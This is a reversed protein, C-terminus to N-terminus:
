APKRVRGYGQVVGTSRDKRRFVGGGNSQSGGPGSSTNGDITELPGSGDALVGTHDPVGGDFNFTVVVLHGDRHWSQATALSTTWGDFGGTKAQAHGKIAPVYRVDNVLDVGYVRAVAHVFAGCWAYGGQPLGVQGQWATIKPGKNSGAPSETTGVQAGAWKMAAALGKGNKERDAKRKKARALEAKTRNGPHRIVEVRRLAARTSGAVPYVGLDLATAKTAADTDPGYVNDRKLKPGGRNAIAQQLQGVEEHEIYPSTLTLVRTM